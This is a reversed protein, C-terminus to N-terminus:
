DTRTATDTGAAAGATGDGYVDSLSLGTTSGEGGLPVQHDLSVFLGEHQWLAPRLLAYKAEDWTKWDNLLLGGTDGANPNICWFTQHLREEAILDRLATMWKQNPGNDLHGGWEGILLPATNEKHLYLWNPDWVDAELSARDWDDGEFWPMRHVSPGYDHPSYVLQAQHESLDVPHDRAGRLDGGWWTFHYDAGDTSDWSVGDVPYIAIGECLILLRPNIALIRQGATECTHKWNDQDTSSDWKARPNEAPGGHPENKIDMALITDNDQYRETVWEWAQYFDEVSIRDTWWVPHTHGSNDAEASHVDLMVKVGYRECLELWADFIELTTLGELEPNEFYNVSGAVQDEGREWELMLETSIPVRVMNIGREAMERTITELSAAWLGHFVREVTNFGFWNAGTLWVENGDADVIRNGETTLWDAGDATGDETGDPGGSRETAQAPSRDADRVATEGAAAGSQGLAVLTAAVLAGCLAAVVGTRSRRM